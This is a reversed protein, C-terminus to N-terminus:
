AAIDLNGGVGAGLNAQSAQQAGGLLTLVTNKEMDANSKMISTSIQQQTGAAKMALASAVLAMDM